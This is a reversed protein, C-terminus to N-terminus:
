TVSPTASGSAANIPEGNDDDVLEIDFDVEDEEVAARAEDRCRATRRRYRALIVQLDALQKELQSVNYDARRASERLQKVESAINEPPRPTSEMLADVVSTETNLYMLKKELEDGAINASQLLAELLTAAQQLQEYQSRLSFYQGCLGVDIAMRQSTLTPMGRYESIHSFSYRRGSGDPYRLNKSKRKGWSRFGHQHPLKTGLDEDSTDPFRGKGDFLPTVLGFVDRTNHRRSRQKHVERKADKSWRALPDSLYAGERLSGLSVPRKRKFALKGQTEPSVNQSSMSYPDSVKRIGFVDNVQLSSPPGSLPALIPSPLTSPAPSTWDVGRLSTVQKRRSSRASNNSRPAASIESRLKSPLPASSSEPDSQVDINKRGKGIGLEVFGTGLIKSTVRGFVRDMQKGERGSGSEEDPEVSLSKRMKEKADKEQRERDREKEKVAPHRKGLWLSRLSEVGGGSSSSDKGGGRVIVMKSFYGLDSIPNDLSGVGPIGPISFAHSHGRNSKSSSGLVANTAGSVTTYDDGAANNSGILNSVRLNGAVSSAMALSDDLRHKIRRHLEYREPPRFKTAFTNNIREMLEMDLFTPQLNVSTASSSDAHRMAKNSYTNQAKQFQALCKLFEMPELFPDKPVAYNLSHLKNRIVIISSFLVAVFTPDLRRQGFELGLETAMEIVFSHFGDATTDCLVGDWEDPPVNFKGFLYLASQIYTILQLVTHRFLTSSDSDPDYTSDHTSSRSISNQHSEKDKEKHLVTKSLLSVAHSHSLANSHHHHPHHSHHLAKSITSTHSQQIIIDPFHYTQIFKEKTSDVPEDLSLGSRSAIDMRLMNVNLHLKEEIARYNGGLINVTSLAPPFDPLSTVMIVGHPTEKPRAGDQRLLNVIKELERLEEEGSKVLPALSTVYIKNDTHGSTSVVITKIPRSRTIVWKDVAYLQFEPLELEDEVVEFNPFHLQLWMQPEKPTASQPTLIKSSKPSIASAGPNPSLTSQQMMPYSPSARALDDLNSIHLSQSRHSRILKSASAKAKPSRAALSSILSSSPILSTLRSTPILLRRPTTQRLTLNPTHGASRSSPVDNEPPQLRLRPPAPAM